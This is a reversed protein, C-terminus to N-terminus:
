YKINIPINFNYKWDDKKIENILNNNEDISNKLNRFSIECVTEIDLLQKFYSLTLKENNVDNSNQRIQIKTQRSNGRRRFSHFDM